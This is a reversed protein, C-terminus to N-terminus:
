HWWVNWLRVIYNIYDLFALIIWYTTNFKPPSCMYTVMVKSYIGKPFHYSCMINIQCFYCKMMEGWGSCSIQWQWWWRTKQAFMWLYCDIHWKRRAFHLDQCFCQLYRNSIEIAPIINAYFVPIHQSESLWPVWSHNLFSQIHYQIYTNRTEFKWRSDYYLFM